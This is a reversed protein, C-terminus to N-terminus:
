AVRRAHSATTIDAFAMLFADIDDQTTTWGTSVRIASGAIEPAYGMATLVHSTKVKGSSCASGASVAIGALDLAIVLTEASMGPVVICSTNPLRPTDHGVIESGAASALAGKEICRRYSFLRQDLTALDCLAARAAAGFGAIGAVNETGARYGREQGGGTLLPTLGMPRGGEALGDRVVLAGVGKPGGLKHASLTMLDVDLMRFDISIRGASQVADTHILAGHRHAIAAAEAVPQLVGTENNALQLSVLTRKDPSCCGSLAADLQALDVVGSSGVPVPVVAARSDVAPALVSDHEVGTLVITDWGARLAANNSESGGSTFVIERPSAGVLAAVQERATEIASRARRGEAHVSSANGMLDSAALLAARAQPRLPTTANHDLYTRTRLM